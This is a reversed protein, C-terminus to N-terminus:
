RLSLQGIPGRHGIASGHHVHAFPGEQPYGVDLALDVQHRAPFVILIVKVVLGADREIAQGRCSRSGAEGFVIHALNDRIRSCAVNIYHRTEFKIAVQM